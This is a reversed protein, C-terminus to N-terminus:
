LFKYCILINCLFQDTLQFLTPSSVPSSWFSFLIFLFSSLKFSRQPLVLFVLIWMIPTGSSWLSFLGSLINSFFLLQFSRFASSHFLSACLSDYLILGFLFLGLCIIILISFIFMFLFCYFCCSSFFWSIYSCEWLAILQNKLLFEEPWSFIPVM